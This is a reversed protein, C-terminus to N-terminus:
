IRSKDTITSNQNNNYCSRWWWWTGITVLSSVSLIWYGKDYNFENDCPWRWYTRWRSIITSDRRKLQWIDLREKIKTLKCAYGFTWVKPHHTINNLLFLRGEIPLLNSGVHDMTMVDWQRSASISSKRRNGFEKPDNVSLCCRLIIKTLDQGRSLLILTSNYYIM